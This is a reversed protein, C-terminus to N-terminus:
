QLLNITKKEPYYLNKRGTKWCINRTRDLGRPDVKKSILSRQGIIILVQLVQTVEIFSNTKNKDKLMHFHYKSFSLDQPFKIRRSFMFTSILSAKKTSM